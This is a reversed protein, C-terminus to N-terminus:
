LKKEFTHKVHFIIFGYFEQVQIVFDYKIATLLILFYFRFTLFIVRLICLTESTLLLVVFFLSLFSMKKMKQIGKRDATALQSPM